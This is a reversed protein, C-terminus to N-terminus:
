QAGASTRAPGSSTMRHYNPFEPAKPPAVPQKKLADMAIAVARELQPDHGERVARPDLEVEVDPSVGKNEVDWKGEPTFFAFSPATVFGGDM